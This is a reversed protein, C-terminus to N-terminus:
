CTEAPLLFISSVAYGAKVCALVLATLRVDNPGFYTLTEISSEQGQGLSEVLHWALGNIINAFQVYNIERFGADYSTPAVPWAGYAKSQITDRPCPPGRRSALPREAM